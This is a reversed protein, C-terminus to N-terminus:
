AHAGSGSSHGPGPEHRDGHQRWRALRFVLRAWEGPCHRGPGSARGRGPEPRKRDGSAAIAFATTWEALDDRRAAQWRLGGREGDWGVYRHGSDTWEHAAVPQAARSCRWSEPTRRILKCDAGTEM